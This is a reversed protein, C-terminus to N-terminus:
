ETRQSPSSPRSFLPSTRKREIPPPQAQARAWKVFPIENVYSHQEKAQRQNSAEQLQREGVVQPLATDVFPAHMPLSGHDPIDDVAGPQQQEEEEEVVVKPKGFGRIQLGTMAKRGAESMDLIQDRTAQDEQLRKQKAGQNFVQIFHALQTATSNPNYDRIPMALDAM